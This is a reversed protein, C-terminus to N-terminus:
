IGMSRPFGRRLEVGRNGAHASTRRRGDLIDLRGRMKPTRSVQVFASALDNQAFLKVFM